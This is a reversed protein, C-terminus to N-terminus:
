ICMHLCLVQCVNLIANDLFLEGGSASAAGTFNSLGVFGVLGVGILDFCFGFLLALLEIFDRVSHKLGEIYQSGCIHLLDPVGGFSILVWNELLQHVQFVKDRIISQSTVLDKCKIEHM